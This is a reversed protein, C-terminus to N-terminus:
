VKESYNGPFLGKKGNFTGVYWGDDKMESVSVTDGVSLTLEDSSRGDFAYLMKVKCIESPPVSPLPPPPLSSRSTSTLSNRRPESSSSPNDISSRGGSSSGLSYTIPMASVGSADAIEEVSLGGGPIGPSTIIFQNMGESVGGFFSKQASRLTEFEIKLLNPRAREYTDFISLLEITSKELASTYEDLKQQNRVIKAPDKEAKEPKLKIDSVKTFYHEYERKIEIRAEIKAKIKDMEKVKANISLIVESAIREEAPKRIAENIGSMVTNYAEACKRSAPADGEKSIVYFSTGLDSCNGSLTKM